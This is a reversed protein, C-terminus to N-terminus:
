YAEHREEEPCDSGGIGLGGVREFSKEGRDMERVERGEVRM